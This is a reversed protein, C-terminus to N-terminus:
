PYRADLAKELYKLVLEEEWCIRPAFGFTGGSAAAVRTCHLILDRCLAEAEQPPQRRLVARIGRLCIEFFRDPPRGALWGLLRKHAATDRTIGHLRAVELVRNHERRTVAGDSWAVLISPVVYLLRSTERNFGVNVLERVIERDRIRSVEMLSTTGTEHMAARQVAESQQQKQHWFCEDERKRSVDNRSDEM